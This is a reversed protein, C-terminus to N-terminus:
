QSILILSYLANIATEGPLWALSRELLAPTSAWALPTVIPKTIPM